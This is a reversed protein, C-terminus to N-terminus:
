GARDALAKLELEAATARVHGLLELAHDNDGPHNRRLLMQAYEHQTHAIWIPSRLRSNMTLAQEFHLEADDHRGLTTALRGLPRSVSGQCLVSMVVSHDAYPRLVDYLLRARPMDDLFAVVDSLLSLNTLSFPKRLLDRFDDHALMFLQERAQATRELQAYIFALACRWGANQPHQDAFAEVAQVLEDLRGQERRILLMQAGFIHTAPDDHGEFRYALSDHALLECDDPRERLLAQSARFVALLWTVYREGPTQALRRLAELEHEAAQIEGVELRVDVLWWHAVARLRRDGVADAVHGLEEALAMSEHVTDPGRTAWLASALVDARITEDAVRHAMEVAQRALVPAPPEARSYVLAGALRGLLQAHLGSDNEGLATLARRLLEVVPGTVAAGSEIRHPGCFGLAARALSTADGLDDALEAAQEYAQRAQGLDGAGWRAEGLGLLLECQRREDPQGTLTLAHLGREYHAAAEDYGLRAAAGRGAVLAYDAAKTGQGDAAAQAFHHALAEVDTDKLDLAELTEGVERHMRMRRASGLQEYINQRVLAHAFSYDGHEADTLLGAAVTEDLADLTGARDALLRELIMFSFTPGVVAAVSLARRAPDSLRAVRHSIAQRLREPAELRVAISGSNALHTLLERIFFPNGATQAELEHVLRLARHDLPQGLTARVLAQIAPEDLGRMSLHQVSHDCLLDALLQALPEGADVETERYSGLLLVNPRRESAVLHRLMLLTPRAAWHLDDLILLAPQQHTMAEVLAAVAEFLAFRESDPDGRVPEGLGRLEPLLRGLEPALDGLEARLWDLGAARAYPRLAEVFPQYPVALGEDCRGYLVLAGETHVSRALEAALRTKGIGPEGGLIVAAHMGDCAQRWGESLCELQADRGVFPSGDPVHLARPLALAVPVPAVRAGGLAEETKTRLEFVREARSLGRLEHRGVDVLELMGPLQDRVLEATSQSVVILGGSALSRLRAARSLVLGYYDGDREHSEGSHLAIRVQMASQTPWPTASLADQLEAACAVADTARAFVSLTADGEGRNKLLRGGRREVVAEIMGDHLELAAAMADADAEWLPTSGEVDTLLFTVVGSPLVGAPPAAPAGGATGPVSPDAAPRLAPSQTLIDAQLVQLAPGPELGLQGALYARTRAYVELADGQRGCRYLALMLQAALRERGPHAAVLAELEGVLGAYEGLRLEAEIRAGLAALRLEELRRIEPGAFEEHCVDALAPGRWMGLAGVLVERAERADGAELARCGHQLRAEFVEADLEGPGVALRYGGAVTRLVSGGSGGDRDLARRLRLVAAQLRKVAAPGRDGWLEDVLRDSSLARNANVLLLALLM